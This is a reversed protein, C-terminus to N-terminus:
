NEENADLYQKLATKMIAHRKIGSSKSFAELRLYLADGLRVSLIHYHKKESEPKKKRGRPM